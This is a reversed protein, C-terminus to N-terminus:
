KYQKLISKQERIAEDVRKIQQNVKDIKDYGEGYEKAIYKYAKRDVMLRDRKLELSNIKQLADYVEPPSSVSESTLVESNYCEIPHKCNPHKLGGDLAEQINPYMPNAGTLSYIRDEYPACYPCSGWHGPVYVLDNNTKIAQDLTENWVANTLNTNYVMSNYSAIDHYAVVQGKKNYYPVVKEVKDYKSVKNLLYEGKDIDIKKITGLSKDYYNTIVRIYKDRAKTEDFDSINFKLKEISKIKPEKFVKSAYEPNIEKIMKEVQSYDRNPKKIIEEVKSKFTDVGVLGLLFVFYTLKVEDLEKYKKRKDKEVEQRIYEEIDETTYGEQELEQIVEEELFDYM